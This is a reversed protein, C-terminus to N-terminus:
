VNVVPRVVVTQSKLVTVAVVNLATVIIVVLVNEVLRALAHIRVLWVSAVPKAAVNRNKLSVVAVDLAIATIVVLVNEVM